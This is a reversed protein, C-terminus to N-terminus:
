YIKVKTTSRSLVLHKIRTLSHLFNFLTFTNDAPLHYLDVYAEVVDHLNYMNNGLTMNTLNLHKLGLTSIEELFAGIDNKIIIKLRKLSPPVRIGDYCKPYFSLDLNELVPCGSLLVNVSVIELRRVKLHLTKLSSLCVESSPQFNM